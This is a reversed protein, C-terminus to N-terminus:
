KSRQMNLFAAQMRTKLGGSTREIKIAEGKIGDHTYPWTASFKLEFTSPLNRAAREKALAVRIANQKAAAEGTQCWVIVPRNESMSWTHFLYYLLQAGTLQHVVSNIFGPDYSTIPVNSM